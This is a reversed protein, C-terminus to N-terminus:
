KSHVKGDLCSVSQLFRLSTASLSDSLVACVCDNWVGALHMLVGPKACWLRQIQSAPGPTPRDMCSTRDGYWIINLAWGWQCLLDCSSMELDCGILPQGTQSLSMELVSRSIAMAFEAGAAVRLMRVQLLPKVM